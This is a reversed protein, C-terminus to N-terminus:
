NGKRTLENYEEEVKIYELYEDVNDEYVFEHQHNDISTLYGYENRSFQSVGRGEFRGLKHENDWNSWYWMITRLKRDLEKM